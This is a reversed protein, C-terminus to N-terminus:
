DPLPGIKWERWLGTASALAWSNLTERIRRLQDERLHALHDILEDVHRDDDPAYQGEVTPVYEPM